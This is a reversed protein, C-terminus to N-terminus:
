RSETTIIEESIRLRVPTNIKTWKNKKLFREEIAIDYENFEINMETLLNPVSDLIHTADEFDVYPGFDFNLQEKSALLLVKVFFYTNM